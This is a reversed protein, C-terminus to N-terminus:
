HLLEVRKGPAWDVAANRINCWYQLRITLEKATDLDNNQFAQSIEENEETIIKVEEESTAEELRERAEMVQMLLEPDEISESETVLIGNLRLMYQARALPDRLVQYAENITSSQTHAYAYEQQGKRSYSDPHMRQQFSLFNRRLQSLDIDYSFRRKDGLGSVGMGFLDFYTVDNPLGPQVVGCGDRNCYLSSYDIESDCKWCHRKQTSFEPLHPITSTYFHRPLSQHQHLHIYRKSHEELAINKKINNASATATKTLVALLELNKSHLVATFAQPIRTRNITQLLLAGTPKNFNVFISM